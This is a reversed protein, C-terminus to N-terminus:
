MHVPTAKSQRCVPTTPLYPYNTAFVEHEDTGHVCRNQPVLAQSLNQKARTIRDRVLGLWTCRVYGAVSWQQWCLRKTASLNVASDDSPVRCEGKWHMMGQRQEELRRRIYSIRNSPRCPNVIPGKMLSFARGVIYWPQQHRSQGDLLAQSQSRINSNQRAM